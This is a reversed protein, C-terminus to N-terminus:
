GIFLELFQARFQRLEVIKLMEIKLSSVKRIPTKWEQLRERGKFM